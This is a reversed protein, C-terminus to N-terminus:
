KMAVICFHRPSIVPDFLPIVYSSDFGKERLFLLRDLIILTELVPAFGMRLLYFLDLFKSQEAYKKEVREIDEESITELELNTKKSCLGIYEKFNNFKKIKGVQVTDKLSPDREVILVELLARYFLSKNPLEKADQTRHISQAALMRANRGMKIRQSRLFDSMPFGIDLQQDSEKNGFLEDTSFEEKLLHYCCGINCLVRFDKQASFVQLCTSALNGCTHLGTLCLSPSSDIPLNFHERILSKFPLETTIFKNTTKYNEPKPDPATTPKQKKGRRPPTIGQSLLEARETLGNWARQLKKNREVANETNTEKFDIGLVKHEYQLALRSSLYGKGDGADVIYIDNEKKVKQHAILDNVLDATIEVEHRKKESMFEKLTLSSEIEQKGLIGHLDEVTTLIHKMNELRLKKSEEFFNWVDEFKNSEISKWFVMNICEDIDNVDKVNTQINKPIFTQWHNDTLYNVMHCNVFDWHPGLYKLIAQLSSRLEKTSM